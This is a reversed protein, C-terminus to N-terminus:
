RTVARFFERSSVASNTVWAQGLVPSNTSVTSWNQFDSTSLILFGDPANGTVRFVFGSGSQLEPSDLFLPSPEPITGQLRAAFDVAVSNTELIWGKLQEDYKWYDPFVQGVTSPSYLDVGAEDGAGLGRFQVSWTINTTPIPLGETPFDGNATFVMTNRPTAGIVIWDGTYLPTGPSNYGNFLPGDMQYIKVRVEVNGAFTLSGASLTNTGYFEFAFNTLFATHSLLIQDGVEQTGPNFRYNLDTMTNDFLTDASASLALTM